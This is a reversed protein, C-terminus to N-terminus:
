RFDPCRRSAFQFPYWRYPRCNRELFLLIILLVSTILDFVMFRSGIAEVGATAPLYDRTLLFWLLDTLHVLVMAAYFLRTTRVFLAAAYFWVFVTVAGSFDVVLALAPGTTPEEQYYRYTGLYFRLLAFMLVLLQLILLVSKPFDKRIAGIARDVDNLAAGEKLFTDLAAQLALALLIGLFIIATAHVLDFQVQGGSM